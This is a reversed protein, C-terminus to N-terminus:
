QLYTFGSILYIQFLLHYISTPISMALPNLDLLVVLQNAHLKRHRRVEKKKKTDLYEWGAKRELECSGDFMLDKQTVRVWIATKQNFYYSPACHIINKKTTAESLILYCLEDWMAEYFVTQTMAM